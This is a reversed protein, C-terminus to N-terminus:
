QIRVTFPKIKTDAQDVPKVLYIGSQLPELFKKDSDIYIDRLYVGSISYLKCPVNKDVMNDTSGNQISTNELIQITLKEVLSDNGWIGYLTFTFTTTTLPKIYFSGSTTGIAVPGFTPTVKVSKCNVFSYSIKVSDNKYMATKDSYLYNIAVSPYVTVHVKVFSSQIFYPAKNFSAVLKIWYWGTDSMPVTNYTTGVAYTLPGSIKAVTYAVDTTDVYVKADIRQILNDSNSVWSYKTIIGDGGKTSTPLVIAISPNKAKPKTTVTIPSVLAVTGYSNTASANVKYKTSPQLGGFGFKVSETKTSQITKTVTDKGIWVSMTTASGFSGLDFTIYISDSTSSTDTVVFQPKAGQVATFFNFATDYSSISNAMHVKVYVKTNSFLGSLSDKFMGKYYIRTVKKLAFFNSNNYSYTYTTTATDNGTFTNGTVVAGNANPVVMSALYTLEKISDRSTAVEKQTWGSDRKSGSTDLWYLRVYYTAPGALGNKASSFIQQVSSDRKVFFSDFTQPATFAKDASFQFQVFTSDKLVGYSMLFAQNKLGDVSYLTAPPTGAKTTLTGLVLLMAMFIGTLINFKKMKEKNKLNKNIKNVKKNDIDSYCVGQCFALIQYLPAIFILFCMKRAFKTTKAKTKPRKAM